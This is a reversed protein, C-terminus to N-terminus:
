FVFISFDIKRSTFMVKGKVVTHQMGGISCIHSPWYFYIHRVDEFAQKNEHSGTFFSMTWLSSGKDIMALFSKPLAKPLLNPELIVSSGTSNSFYGTSTPSKPSNGIMRSSDIFYVEFSHFCFRFIDVHLRNSRSDSPGQGVIGLFKGPVAGIWLCGRWSDKETISPIRTFTEWHNSPNPRRLHCIVCPWVHQPPLM